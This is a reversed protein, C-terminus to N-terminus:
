GKRAIIIGVILSIGTSIWLSFGKPELFRMWILSLAILFVVGIFIRDFLNTKMPLFGNRVGKVKSM